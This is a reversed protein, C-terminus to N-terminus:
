PSYSETIAVETVQFVLELPPRIPQEVANGLVGWKIWWDEAAETANYGFVEGIEEWQERLMSDDWTTDVQLSRAMGADRMERDEGPPLTVLMANRSESEQVQLCRAQRIEQFAELLQPIQDRSSLHSMLSGLVAADETALSSNQMTCPMLPHAAEGILLVTGSDDLWDEASKRQVVKTRLATDALNFLRQIKSDHGDFNIINTPVTINWGEEVQECHRLGEDPWYVHLSYEKGGRIPYGFASRSNGMWIPWEPLSAFDSLDPDKQMESVPVTVTYFSHNTEVGGDAEPAVYERVKSCSGDAGVVVDASMRTGGEELIVTPRQKEQDFFVEQVTSKFHVVVGAAIALKYLAEQLDNHHMILFEAGAERIIDEQWELAGALEGTELSHFKSKRCRLSGKVIDQLGFDLLIKTMNPPIRIGCKVLILNSPVQHLGHKTELVQVRHGGRALAFASALGGIGGGVIIIDIALKHTSNAVKLDGISNTLGNIEPGSSSPPSPNRLAARTLSRKTSLPRAPSVDLRKSSSFSPM